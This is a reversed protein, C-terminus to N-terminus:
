IRSINTKHRGTGVQLTVSILLLIFIFLYFQSQSFLSSISKTQEYSTLICGPPRAAERRPMYTCIYRERYIYMFNEGCILEGYIDGAWIYVNLLIM